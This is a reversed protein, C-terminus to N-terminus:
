LTVDSDTVNRMWHLEAIVAAGPAHQHWDIRTGARHHENDPLIELVLADIGQFLQGIPFPGVAALRDYRDRGQAACVM